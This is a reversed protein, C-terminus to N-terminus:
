LRTRRTANPRCSWSPTRRTSGAGFTRRAPPFGVTQEVDGDYLGVVFERLSTLEAV